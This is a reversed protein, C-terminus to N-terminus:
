YTSLKELLEPSAMETQCKLAAAISTLEEPKLVVLDPNGLRFIEAAKASPFSIYRIVDSGMPIIRVGAFAAMIEKELIFIEDPTETGKLVLIRLKDEKAAPKEDAPPLVIKGSGDLKGAAQISSKTPAVAKKSNKTQALCQLSFIFSLFLITSCRLM